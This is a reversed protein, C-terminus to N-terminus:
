CWKRTCDAIRSIPILNYLLLFQLLILDNYMLRLVLVYESVVFLKHVM